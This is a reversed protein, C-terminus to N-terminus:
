YSKPCGTQQHTPRHEQRSPQKTHPRWCQLRCATKTDLHIGRPTCMGILVGQAWSNEPLGAEQVQHEWGPTGPSVGTQPVLLGYAVSCLRLFFFSLFLFFSFFVFMCFGLCIAFCFCIAVVVCCMDLFFFLFFLSVFCVCWIWSLHYSCFWVLLFLSASLFSVVM